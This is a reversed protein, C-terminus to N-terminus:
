INGNKKLVIIINFIKNFNLFNFMLKVILLFVINVLYYRYFFIFNKYFNFFYFFINLINNKKLNYNLLLKNFFSISSFSNHKIMLLQHSIKDTELLNILKDYFFNESYVLLTPGKGFSYFDKLLIRDKNLLFCNIGNKLLKDKFINFSYGSYKDLHLFFTYNCNILIDLIKRFNYSKQLLFKHQNKINIKM